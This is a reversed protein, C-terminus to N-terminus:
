SDLRCWKGVLKIDEQVPDTSFGSNREGTVALALTDGFWSRSLYAAQMARGDNFINKRICSLPQQDIATVLEDFTTHPKMVATFRRVHLLSRSPVM